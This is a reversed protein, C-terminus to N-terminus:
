TRAPWTRAPSTIPRSDREALRRGIATMAAQVDPRLRRERVQGAPDPPPWRPRSHERIFAALTEMVAAHDAPSGRAVRELACIGSIRVDLEESGLQEVATACRGTVRRQRSRAVTRATFALAALLGAGLALVRGRAADRATERRPERASGPDHRALWGVDHHDHRAAQRASWAARVGQAHVAYAVGDLGSGDPVARNTAAAM